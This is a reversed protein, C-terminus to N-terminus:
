TSSTRAYRACRCRLGLGWKELVGPSFGEAVIDSMAILRKAIALGRPDRVNLSIGLKGPNKIHFQGGMSQYDDGMDAATVAPLPGSARDRAERGGKPAMAALALRSDPNAKWEM